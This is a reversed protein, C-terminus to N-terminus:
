RIRLPLSLRTDSDIPKEWPRRLRLFLTSSGPQLMRFRLRRILPAGPPAAAKAEVGADLAKLLRADMQEVQWSYGSGGPEVLRLELIQGRRLSIWGDAPNATAPTARLAPGALLALGLLHAVTQLPGTLSRRLCVRRRAEENHVAATM